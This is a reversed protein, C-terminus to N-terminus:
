QVLRISQTGETHASFGYVMQKLGNVITEVSLV